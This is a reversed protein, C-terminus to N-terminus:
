ASVLDVFPSSSFQMFGCFNCASIAWGMSEGSEGTKFCRHVRVGGFEGSNIASDVVAHPAVM